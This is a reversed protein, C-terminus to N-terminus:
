QILFGSAIASLKQHLALNGVINGFEALCIGYVKPQADAGVTGGEILLAVADAAAARQLVEGELHMQVDKVRLVYSKAIKM